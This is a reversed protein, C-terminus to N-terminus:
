AYDAAMRMASFAVYEASPREQDAEPGALWSDLQPAFQRMAFKLNEIIEPSAEAVLRERELDDSVGWFSAYPILPWLDQPIRSAELSAPIRMACLAGYLKAMEAENLIRRSAM